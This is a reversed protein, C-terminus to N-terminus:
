IGPGKYNTSVQLFLRPYNHNTIGTFKRCYSTDMEESILSSGADDTIMVTLTAPQCVSYYSAVKDLVQVTIAIM